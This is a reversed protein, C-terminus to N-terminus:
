SFRKQFFEYLTTNMLLLLLAYMTDEVPITFMRMSLNEENNYWVVENEIFSGTLIGNVIFFPILAILYSIYFKGLWHTRFIFVHLLLFVGLLSFTTTTYLREMNTAAVAFLFGVLFLSIYQTYGQLIDRRVFYNFTEYIFMCAYPVTIFFLWEELPLNLINWGILHQDTFGWVGWETFLVDWIIFFAGTLAMAPFFYKWKSVFHIRPEFSRAFPVSITFLNILLYTSM